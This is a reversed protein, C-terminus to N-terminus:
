LKRYNNKNNIYSINRVGGTANAANKNQINYYYNGLYWFAFYTLLPIDIM